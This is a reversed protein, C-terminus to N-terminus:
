PPESKLAESVQTGIDGLAIDSAERQGRYDREHGRVYDSSMQGYVAVVEWGGEWESNSNRRIRIYQGIVAFKSPIWATQTVSDRRLDCQTYM